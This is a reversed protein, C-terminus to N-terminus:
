VTTLRVFQRLHETVEDRSYGMAFLRGFVEVSALKAVFYAPQARLMHDERRRSLGVVDNVYGGRFFGPLVKVHTHGQMPFGLKPRRAHSEPLVDRAVSRVVSKDELFPHKYNVFRWTRRIKHRAPLNFGFSVVSEDLFPFRAEVSASMGMRDNRHLLTLLHQGFMEMTLYQEDGAAKPLFDYASRGSERLLQQEFGRALQGLFNERSDAALLHKKLKPVLGYLWEVGRLPFRILRAFRRMLLTPYGLFLEDSGEGSLIAKVKAARAVRAVAAFPIANTHTVIPLEYHWTAGAWDEIMQHPEFRSVHLERKLERALATAGVLESQGVVDATFLSFDNQEKAALTAIL